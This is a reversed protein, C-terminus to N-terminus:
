SGPFHHSEIIEGFDFLPCARQWWLEGDQQLGFQRILSEVEVETIPKKIRARINYILQPMDLKIPKCMLMQTAYHDDLGALTCFSKTRRTITPIVNSWNEIESAIISAQPTEVTLNKRAEDLQKKKEEWERRQQERELEWARQEQEMERRFEEDRKTQNEEWEHRLRDQATKWEKQKLAQEEEWAQQQRERRSSLYHALLTTLMGTALGGLFTLLIQVQHPIM